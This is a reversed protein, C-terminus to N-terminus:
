MHCKVYSLLYEIKKSYLRLKAPESYNQTEARNEDSYRKSFEGKQSDKKPLKSKAQGFIQHVNSLAALLFHKRYNEGCGQPGRLIKRVDHQLLKSAQEDAPMQQQRCEHCVSEIAMSESEYVTNSKLNGSISVLCNAIEAWCGEFDGNFYRFTFCYAALINILNNKTCHSPAKSSMESFDKITKKLAPCNTFLDEEGVSFNEDSTPKVLNIKYDLSWWPKTQPLIQSLNGTELLGQFEMREEDTLRAWVDDANNLDIDALREVLDPVEEGDDSDAEDCQDGEFLGSSGDSDLAEGDNVNQLRQLIELVSRKSSSEYDDRDLAMEQTVNERYFTESCQSHQQSRYCTLSCYLINCRPCCYKSEVAKCIQCIEEKDEM